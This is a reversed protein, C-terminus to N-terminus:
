CWKSIILSEGIHNLWWLCALCQTMLWEQISVIGKYTHQEQELGTNYIRKSHLFMHQKYCIYTCLPARLMDCWETISLYRWAEVPSSVSLWSLLRTCETFSLLVSKSIRWVAGSVDTAYSSKTICMQGSFQWEEEGVLLKPCCTNPM